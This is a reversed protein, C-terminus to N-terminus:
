LSRKGDFGDRETLTFMVGELKYERTRPGVRDMKVNEMSSVEQLKECFGRLSGQRTKRDRVFADIAQAWTGYIAEDLDADSLHHAFHETVIVLVTRAPERQIPVGLTARLVRVDSRTLWGSVAETWKEVQTILRGVKNSRSKMDGRYHDQYKLQFLALTGDAEDYAVLDLDTLHRTGDGLVVNRGLYISSDLETFMVMLRDQMYRERGQQARDWDKPHLMRLSTLLAPIPDLQPIVSSKIWARRSFAVLPPIAAMTYGLAGVREWDCSLVRLVTDVDSYAVPRFDPDPEGYENIATLMAERFELSEATITLIDITRIDPRKKALAECFAIHKTAVSIIFALGLVYSRFPLGGFVADQSIAKLEDSSHLRITAYAFHMADLTPHADYGIYYDRFVRVNRDLLAPM